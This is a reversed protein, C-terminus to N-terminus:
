HCRRRCLEAILGEAHCRGVEGTDHYRRRSSEKGASIQSPSGDIVDLAVLVTAIQGPESPLMHPNRDSNPCTAGLNFHSEIELRIPPARPAIRSRDVGAASKSHSTGNRMRKAVMRNM